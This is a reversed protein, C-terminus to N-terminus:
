AEKEETNPPAPLPMWHTAADFGYHWGDLGVFYDTGTKVYAILIGAEKDAPFVLVDTDTPPLAESVPVWRRAERLRKVESRLEDLEHEAKCCSIEPDDCFRLFGDRLL